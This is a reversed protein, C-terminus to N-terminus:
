GHLQAYEELEHQMLLNEINQVATIEEESFTKQCVDNILIMQHSIELPVDSKPNTNKEIINLMKQDHAAIERVHKEYQLYTADVVDLLNRQSILKSLM